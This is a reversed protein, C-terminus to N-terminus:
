RQRVPRDGGIRLGHIELAARLEPDSPKIAESAGPELLFPEFLAWNLVDHGFRSQYYVGDFGAAFAIRAAQQTLSRPAARQMTSADLDEIGLALLHSALSKRLHGLWASSHLDAYRGVATASGMQRKEFWEKPVTALPYFDNAGDIERLEALLKVDLRFRALTELFCGM